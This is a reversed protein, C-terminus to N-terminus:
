IYYLLMLHVFIILPLGFMFTKKQTKHHFVLMGLWVGLVAGFLAIMFLFKESIRYHRKIAARKDFWMCLFGFINFLVYAILLWNNSINGPM